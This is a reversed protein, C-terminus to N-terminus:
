AALAQNVRRGNAIITAQNLPGQIFSAKRATTAKPVGDNGTFNAAKNQTKNSRMNLMAAAKARQVLQPTLAAVTQQRRQENQAIRQFNLASAEIKQRQNQAALQNAAAQVRAGAVNLQMNQRNRQQRIAANQVKRRANVQLQTGTLRQKFKDLIQGARFGKVQSGFKRWWSQREATKEIKQLAAKTQFVGLATKNRVNAAAKANQASQLELRDGAAEKVVALKM